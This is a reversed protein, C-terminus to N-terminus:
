TSEPLYEQYPDHDKKLLFMHATNIKMHYSKLHRYRREVYRFKGSERCDAHIVNTLSFTFLTIQPFINLKSDCFKNPVENLWCKSNLM